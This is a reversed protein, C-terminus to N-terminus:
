GRVLCVPALDMGRAYAAVATTIISLVIMALAKGNRYTPALGLVSRSAPSAGHRALSVVVRMEAGASDTIDLRAALLGPLHALSMLDFPLSNSPWCVVLSLAQDGHIPKSAM